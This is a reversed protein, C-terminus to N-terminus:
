NINHYTNGKIIQKLAKKANKLSKYSKNKIKYNSIIIGHSLIQHFLPRGFIDIPKWTEEQKKWWLMGKNNIVKKQIEFEKRYERIRFDDIKLEEM